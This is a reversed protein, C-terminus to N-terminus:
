RATAPSGSITESQGCTYGRDKKLQDLVGEIVAKREALMEYVKEDITNKALLHVYTISRQQGPRHLRALSQEYDGLSFGLSFYVCFAARTLDVGLGGSQVQVALVSGAGNQWAALQNLRGSLERPKRELALAARAAADLDHQFRCFVVVPEQAPLDELVDTLCDQKAEDLFVQAAEDTTVYGSTVQQLRLLRVLANAPTVLGKGVDAALSNELSDYVLQAKSSLTCYRTQHVAPPLSLVDEKKVRFSNEYFKQTLEEQNKWGVLQHQLFDPKSRLSEQLPALVAKNDEVDKGAAINQQAEEIKQKLADLAYVAYRKKFANFNLGFVNPCLFRFQAYLDLPSHPMPTGTLALRWPVGQSLRWVFVSAKGWPSKLRHSEDCVLCDLQLRQLLRALDGRWASEYNTVILWPQTGCERVFGEALKAKTKTTGNDLVLCRLHESLGHKRIENPWVPVVSLPCLVLCRRHGRELVIELATRTKMTGMDMALMAGRRPLAFSRAEEQHPLLPSAAPRLLAQESELIM